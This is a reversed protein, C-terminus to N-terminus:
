FESILSQPPGHARGDPVRRGSERQRDEGREETRGTWECVRETERKREEEVEM